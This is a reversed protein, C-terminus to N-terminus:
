GEGAEAAAAGPHMGAVEMPLAAEGLQVGVVVVATGAAPAGVGPTAAAAAGAAAVASLIESLGLRAVMAAAAELQALMHTGCWAGLAEAPCLSASVKPTLAFEVCVNRHYM